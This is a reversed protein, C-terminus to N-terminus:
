DFETFRRGDDRIMCHKYKKDLYMTFEFNVINNGFFHCPECIGTDDTHHIDTDSFIINYLRRRVNLSFSILEEESSFALIFNHVYFNHIDIYHTYIYYKKNKSVLEKKTYYDIDQWYDIKLTHSICDGSSTKLQLNNFLNKYRHVTTDLINSEQISLPFIAKIQQLEYKESHYYLEIKTKNAKKNITRYHPIDSKDLYKIIEQSFFVQDFNLHSLM